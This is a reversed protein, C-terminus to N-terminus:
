IFLKELMCEKLLTYKEISGYLYELLDSIISVIRSKLIPEASDLKPIKYDMLDGKSITPYTSGFSLNSFDNLVKPTKLYEKIFKVNYSKLINLQLLASSIMIDQKLIAVAGRTPRVTSIILNNYYGKQVGNVWKKDLEVRYIGTLVDIDGIELYNDNVIEKTQLPLVINKLKFIDKSAVDYLDDNLSKILSKYLEILKRQVKIRKDLTNLFEAIKNQESVSPVSVRIKSLDNSNIAPYSTGTCRIMVEDNFRKTNILHYFFSPSQITHLVAYGTSAVYQDDSIVNFLYNNFQYPRVMQFLIDELCLVRQARSPANERQIIKDTVLVGKEVSELDIYHFTENLKSSTKNVSCYESLVKENWEDNFEKFRLTPVNLIKNNTKEM